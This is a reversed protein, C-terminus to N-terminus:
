AELISAAYQRYIVRLLLPDGGVEMVVPAAFRNALFLNGDVTVYVGYVTQPDGMTPPDWSCLPGRSSYQGEADLAPAAFGATADVPNYGDFDAETYDGIVDDPSPEHDSVFLRILTTLSFEDDIVKQLQAEVYDNMLVNVGM